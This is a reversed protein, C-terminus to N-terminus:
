QGSPPPQPGPYPAPPEADDPGPPEMGNARIFDLLKQLYRRLWGNVSQLGAVQSELAAIRTSKDLDAMHLEAVQKSVREVEGTLKGTLLDWGKTQSDRVEPSSKSNRFLGGVVIGVITLVAGALTVIAWTSDAVV